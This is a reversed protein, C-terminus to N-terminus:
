AEVKRRSKSKERTKEIIQNVRPFEKKFDERLEKFSERDPGSGARKLANLVIVVIYATMFAAFGALIIASLRRPGSKVTPLSPQDLVRVVPIDKQANLKALEYEQRLTLYTKTKIEIDRQFRALMKLIEPNSSAAWGRNSNQFKELKDEAEKLEKEIEVLQKELYKSAQKAQSRRKHINYNELETIYAQLVAQSLRSSTTEVSVDIVGSKKDMSVSTIKALSALLRDPDRTDFYDRLNINKDNLPYEKDLVANRIHRSRLIVPFLESSNEDMNTLGNMQALEQLASLRDGKGSPLIRAHSSYKNPTLFLIIGALIMVAVATGVIWKKNKLFLVALEFLNIRLFERGRSNEAQEESDDLWPMNDKLDDGKSM